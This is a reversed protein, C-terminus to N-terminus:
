INLLHGDLGSNCAVIGNADINYGKASNGPCVPITRIYNTALQNLLAPYQGTDANYAAAAGVLQRINAQCAKVAATQRARTFNPIAIAALLGIIAVVIMIEVLTFGKKRTWINM